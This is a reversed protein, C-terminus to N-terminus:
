DDNWFNRYYEVYRKSRVLGQESKSKYKPSLSFYSDEFYDNLYRAALELTLLAMAKKVSEPTIIQSPYSSNYGEIGAEFVDKKFESTSPKKEVGAESHTGL